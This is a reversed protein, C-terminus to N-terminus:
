RRVRRTPPPRRRRLSGTLSAVDRPRAFALGLRSFKFDNAYRSSVLYDQWTGEISGLRQRPLRRSSSAPATAAPRARRRNGRRLPPPPPLLM